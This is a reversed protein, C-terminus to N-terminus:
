LLATIYVGAPWMCPRPITLALLKPPLPAAATGRADCRLAARGGPATSSTSPEEGPRPLPVALAAARHGGGRLSPLLQKPKLSM